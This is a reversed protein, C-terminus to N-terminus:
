FVYFIIGINIYVRPHDSYVKLLLIYKVINQKSHPYIKCKHLKSVYPILMTVNLIAINSEAPYEVCTVASLIALEKFKIGCDADGTSTGAFAM